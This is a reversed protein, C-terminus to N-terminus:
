RRASRGICAQHPESLPCPRVVAHPLVYEVWADLFGSGLAEGDNIEGGNGVRALLAGLLLLEVAQRRQPEGFLEHTSPSWPEAATVLLAACEDHAATRSMTLVIDDSYGRVAHRSWDLASNGQRDRHAVDAGSRLLMRMIAPQGSSGSAMLPTWGQPTQENIDAGNHLLREVTSWNDGQEGITGLPGIIATYLAPFAGAVEDEDEIQASMAAYWSSEPHADTATAMVAAVRM